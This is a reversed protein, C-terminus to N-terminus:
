FRHEKGRVPCCILKGDVALAAKNAEEMGPNCPTGDPKTNTLDNDACILIERQQYKRRAMEAVPLLNGCNFAALVAHGTAMHLSAATAYGEAVLLPGSKGGDKAPLSCFCAKLEGGSLFRKGGDKNIFQLSVLKGEANFVPLVLSGNKAQRIDGLPLIGKLKLYANDEGAPPLASFIRIAKSAAEQQAKERRERAENRERQIREQLEEKEAEAMANMTGAEYLPFTQGEGGEHYNCLWVTPPFDMHIKYRGATGLPKKTTGCYALEGSFDINDVVLGASSLVARAKEILDVHSSM